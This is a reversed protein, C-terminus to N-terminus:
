PLFAPWHRLRLAITSFIQVLETTSHQLFQVYRVLVGLSAPSQRTSASEARHRNGRLSEGERKHLAYECSRLSGGRPSRAHDSCVCSGSEQVPVVTKPATTPDLAMSFAISQAEVRADTEYSDASRVM